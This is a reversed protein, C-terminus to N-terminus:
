IVKNDLLQGKNQEKAIPLAWNRGMKRLRAKELEAWFREFSEVDKSQFVLELIKLKKNADNHVTLIFILKGSCRLHINIQMALLIWIVREIGDRNAYVLVM